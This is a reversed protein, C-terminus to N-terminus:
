GGRMAKVKDQYKKYARARTKKVREPNRDIWDRTSQRRKEKQEDTLFPYPYRSYEKRCEKCFIQRDPGLPRGCGACNLKLAKQAKKIEAPSYITSHRKGTIRPSIVGRERMRVLKGTSCGLLKALARETLSETKVSPYDKELIQRIREKTLGVESGIDELTFGETRMSAIKENRETMVELRSATPNMM